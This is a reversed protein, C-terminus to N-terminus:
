TDLVSTIDGATLWSCVADQHLNILNNQPLCALGNVTRATLETITRPAVWFRVRYAIRTDLYVCMLLYYENLIFFCLVYIHAIFLTPFNINSTTINKVAFAKYIHPESENNFGFQFVTCINLLRKARSAKIPFGLILVRIVLM